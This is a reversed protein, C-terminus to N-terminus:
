KKLQYANQLAKKSLYFDGNLRACLSGMFSDYEAQKRLTEEEDYNIDLVEQMQSKRSHMNGFTKPLEQLATRKTGAGNTKKVNKVQPNEKTSSKAPAPGTKKEKETIKEANKRTCELAAPGGRAFSLLEDDTARCLTLLYYLLIDKETRASPTHYFVNEHFIGIYGLYVDTLLSLIVQRSGPKRLHHALLISEVMLQSKALNSQSDFLFLKKFLSKLEIHALSYLWTKDKQEINGDNISLDSCGKLVVSKIRSNPTAKGTSPAPPPVATPTEDKPPKMLVEFGEMRLSHKVRLVANLKLNALPLNSILGSFYITFLPTFEKEEDLLASYGGDWDFSSMDYLAKRFTKLVKIENEFFKDFSERAGSFLKNIIFLELKEMDFEFLKLSYKSDPPLNNISFQSIPLENVSVGSASSSEFPVSERSKYMKLIQDLVLDDIEEGYGASGLFRILEDRDFHQIRTNLEGGRCLEIVSLKRYIAYRGRSDSNIYNRAFSKEQPNHGCLDTLFTSIDKETSFSDPDFVPFVKELETALVRKRSVLIPIKLDLIKEETELFGDLKMSEFSHLLEDENEENKKEKEEASIKSDSYDRNQKVTSSRLRSKISDPFAKQEM